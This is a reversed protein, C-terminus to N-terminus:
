FLHTAIKQLPHMKDKFPLYWKKPVVVISNGKLNSLFCPWWCYSSNMIIFDNFSIMLRLNNFINDKEMIISNYPLKINKLEEYNDTFIYFICDPCKKIFLNFADELYKHYNICLDKSNLYDEGLRLCVCVNNSKIKFNNNKVSPNVAMFPIVKKLNEKSPLFDPWQFYGYLSYYKFLSKSFEVPEINYGLYLGVLSFTKVIFVPIKEENFFIGNLKYIIRSLLHLFKHVKILFLPLKNKLDNNIYLLDNSYSDRLNSNKYWNNNVIIEANIKNKLAVAYAIQFMQNGLGGSLHIEIINKM